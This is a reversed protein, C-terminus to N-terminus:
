IAAPHTTRVEGEVASRVASAARDIAVHLWEHEARARVQGSPTLHAVVECRAAEHARAPPDLQVSVSVLQPRCPSLAARLRSEAYGSTYNTLDFGSAHVIIRM